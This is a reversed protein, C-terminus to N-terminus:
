ELSNLNYTEINKEVDRLSLFTGSTGTGTFHTRKEHTLIDHHHCGDDDILGELETHGGDLSGSEDLGPTPESKSNPCRSESTKIGDCEAAPSKLRNERLMYDRGAQYAVNIAGDRDRYYEGLLNRPAGAVLLVSSEVDPLYRHYLITPHCM